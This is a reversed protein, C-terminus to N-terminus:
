PKTTQQGPLFAVLGCSKLFTGYSRIFSKSGTTSSAVVGISATTVLLSGTVVRLSRTAAALAAGPLSDYADPPGPETDCKDTSIKLIIAPMSKRCTGYLLRPSARLRVTEQRM